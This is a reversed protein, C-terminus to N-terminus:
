RLGRADMNSNSSKKRKQMAKDKPPPNEHYRITSGRDQQIFLVIAPWCVGACFYWLASDPDPVLLSPMPGNAGWKRPPTFLVHASVRVLRM